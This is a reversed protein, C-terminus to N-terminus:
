DKRTGGENSGKQIEKVDVGIISREHNLGSAIEAMGGLMKDVVAEVYSLEREVVPLFLTHFFEDVSWRRSPLYTALFHKGLKGDGEFIPVKSILVATQIFDFRLCEEDEAAIGTAHCNSLMVVLVLSFAACWRYM